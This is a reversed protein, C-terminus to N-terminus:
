SYRTVIVNRTNYKYQFLYCSGSNSTYSDGLRRQGVEVIWERTIGYAVNCSTYVLKDHYYQILVVATYVSILAFHSVVAFQVLLDKCGYEQLVNYVIYYTYCHNYLQRKYM